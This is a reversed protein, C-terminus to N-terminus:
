PVGSDRVGPIPSTPWPFAGKLADVGAQTALPQVSAVVGRRFSKKDDASLPFAGGAAVLGSAAALSQLLSRRSVM